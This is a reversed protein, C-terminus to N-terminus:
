TRKHKIIKYCHNGNWGGLLNDTRTIIGENELEKLATLTQKVLVFHSVIDISSLQKDSNNKIYDLIPEKLFKYRM